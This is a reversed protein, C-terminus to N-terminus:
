SSRKKLDASRILGQPDLLKGNSDCVVQPPITAVFLENSHLCREDIVPLCKQKIIIKSMFYLKQPQLNSEPLPRGSAREGKSDSFVLSGSAIDRNGYKSDDEYLYTPVYNTLITVAGGTCM